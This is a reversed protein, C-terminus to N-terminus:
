KEERSLKFNADYEWPWPESIWQWPFPSHSSTSTLMGFHREYTQKLGQCKTVLANYKKVAESDMPHTNLYLNLDIILFDVATIQALLEKQNLETNM